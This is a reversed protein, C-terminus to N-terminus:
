PREDKNYKENSMHNAYDLYDNISDVKNQPMVARDEGTFLQSEPTQFGFRAFYTCNEPLHVSVFKNVKMEDPIYM